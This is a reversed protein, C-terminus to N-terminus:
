VRTEARHDSCVFKDSLRSAKNQPVWVGCKSCNVLALNKSHEAQITNRGRTVNAKAEKLIRALGIMGAIQKRYRLATLALLGFVVLLIFFGEKM